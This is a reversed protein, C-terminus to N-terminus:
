ETWKTWEKRTRRHLDTNENWVFRISIEVGKNRMWNWRLLNLGTKMPFGIRNTECNRPAPTAGLLRQTTDVGSPHLELSRAFGVSRLSYRSHLIGWTEGRGQLRSPLSSPSVMCHPKIGPTAARGAREGTRITPSSTRRAELRAVTPYLLPTSEAACHM